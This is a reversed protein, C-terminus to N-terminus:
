GFLFFCVDHVYHALVCLSFWLLSYHKGSGEGSWSSRASSFFVVKLDMIFVASAPM